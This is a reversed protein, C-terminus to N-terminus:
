KKNMPHQINKKELLSELLKVYIRNWERIDDNSLVEFHDTILNLMSQHLEENVKRGMDTIEMYVSRRDNSEERDRRVYGQQILKDCIGTVGGSTVYLSQALEKVRLPGEANLLFLINAQTISVGTKNWDNTFLRNHLGSMEYNAVLLEEREKDM